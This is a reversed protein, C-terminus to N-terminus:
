LGRRRSIMRTKFMTRREPSDATRERLHAVETWDNFVFPFGVKSAPTENGIGSHPKIHNYHLRFGDILLKATRETEMGRMVKTRERITGQLRESMNNNIEHRIGQSVVHKTDGGFVREIGDQYSKLGDTVITTPPHAARSKAKRFLTEADRTTRTKSIHTALLYRSDADMVNWLWVNHGDVKVMMEDAVWKNGTEAKFSDVFERGRRSYDRVWEYLTATSPTFGYQAQMRRQVDRYSLGDYFMGIAAGVQDPPIRRRPLAGGETFKVNCPKCKYVQKGNRTGYKIIDEPKSCDPCVLRAQTLVENPIAMKDAKM